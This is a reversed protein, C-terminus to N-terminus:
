EVRFQFSSPREIRREIKLVTVRGIYTFDSHHKERHFVHIEDGNEHSNEMRDEAFHDTPGEWQLTKGTLRDDYQEQFAQQDETVFLIILNSDRPTVVGRALAQYSRYGWLDALQPRSYMQGIRIDQFTVPM